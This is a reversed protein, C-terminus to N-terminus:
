SEYFADEIIERVDYHGDCIDVIIADFRFNECDTHHTALYKEAAKIIRRRKREDVAEEATGYEDTSRAKVEAFVMTDGKRAIIDIEGGRCAYNREVIEWGRVRLEDAAHREAERGVAVRDTQM